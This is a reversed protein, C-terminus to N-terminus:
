AVPPRRPGARARGGPGALPGCGDSVLVGFSLPHTELRVVQPLKLQALLRLALWAGVLTLRELGPNWQGM